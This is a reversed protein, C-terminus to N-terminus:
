PRIKLVLVVRREVSRPFQSDLNITNPDRVVRVGEISKRFSEASIVVLGSSGSKNYKESRNQVVIGIM